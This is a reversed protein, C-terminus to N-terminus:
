YFNIPRKRDSFLIFTLPETFGNAKLCFRFLHSPSFDVPSKCNLDIKSYRLFNELEIRNPPKEDLQNNKGPPKPFFFSFNFRIAFRNIFKSEMM